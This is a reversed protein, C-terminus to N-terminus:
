ERPAESWQRVAVQAVWLGDQCRMPETARAHQIMEVVRRVEEPNPGEVLFRMETM